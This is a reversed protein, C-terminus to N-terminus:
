SMQLARIIKSAENKVEPDKIKGSERVKLALELVKSVDEPSLNEAMKLYTQNEDDSMDLDDKCAAVDGLFSKCTKMVKEDVM